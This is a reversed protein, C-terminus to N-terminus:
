EVKNDDMLLIKKSIKYSLVFGGNNQDYQDMLSLMEPDDICNQVIQLLDRKVKLRGQLAKAYETIFEETPNRLGNEIAAILSRSHYEGEMKDSLEKATIHTFERFFKLVRVKLMLTKQVSSGADQTKAETNQDLLTGGKQEIISSESESASSENEQLLLRQTYIDPLVQEIMIRKQRNIKYKQYLQLLEEETQIEKGLRAIASILHNRAERNSSTFTRCSM